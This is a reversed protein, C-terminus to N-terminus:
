IFYFVVIVTYHSFSFSVSHVGPASRHFTVSLTEKLTVANNNMVHQGVELALVPLVAHSRAATFM